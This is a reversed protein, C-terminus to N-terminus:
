DDKGIVHVQMLEGAYEVEDLHYVKKRKRTEVLGNLMVEGNAIRIKAEGGGEVLNEIKLIKYLEIPEERVEVVTAHPAQVEIKPKKRRGIVM